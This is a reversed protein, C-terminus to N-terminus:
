GIPLLLDSPPVSHHPQSRSWVGTSSLHKSVATVVGLDMEKCVSFTRLLIKYQEVVVEDKDCGLGVQAEIRGVRNDIDAILRDSSM